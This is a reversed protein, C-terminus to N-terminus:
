ACAYLKMNPDIVLAIVKGSPLEGFRWKKLSKGIAEGLTDCGRKLDEM